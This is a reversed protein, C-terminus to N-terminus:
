GAQILVDGNVEEGESEVKKIPNCRRWDEYEYDMIVMPEVIAHCNECQYVSADQGYEEIIEYDQWDIYYSNDYPIANYCYPCIYIEEDDMTM